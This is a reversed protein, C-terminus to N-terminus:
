ERGQQLRHPEIREVCVETLHPNMRHGLHEKQSLRDLSARTLVKKSLRGSIAFPFGHMRRQQDNPHLSIQQQCLLVLYDRYAPTHIYTRVLLRDLTVHNGKFKPCFGVTLQRIDLAILKLDLAKIFQNLDDFSM